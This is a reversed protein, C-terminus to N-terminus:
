LEFEKNDFYKIQRSMLYSSLFDSKELVYLRVLFLFAEAKDASIRGNPNLTFGNSSFVELIEKCLTVSESKKYSRKGHIHGLYTPPVGYLIECNGM